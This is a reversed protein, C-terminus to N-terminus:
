SSEVIISDCSSITLYRKCAWLLILILCIWFFVAFVLFNALKCCVTHIWITSLQTDLLLNILQLPGQLLLLQRHLLSLLSSCYSTWCCVFRNRALLPLCRLFLVLPARLHLTLLFPACCSRTPLSNAASGFQCCKFPLSWSSESRQDLDVTIINQGRVSFDRKARSSRPSPKGRPLLFNKATQFSLLYAAQISVFM